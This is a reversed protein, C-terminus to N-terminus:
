PSCFYVVLGKDRCLEATCTLLQAEVKTKSLLEVNFSVSFDM